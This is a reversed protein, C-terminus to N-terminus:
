QPAPEPNSEPASAGPEEPIPPEPAPPAPPEIPEGPDTPAPEIIPPEIPTDPAEPPEPEPVPPQEPTTEGPVPAVPEQVWDTALQSPNFLTPCNDAADPIGDRDTDPPLAPEVTTDPDPPPLEEVPTVPTPVPETNEPCGKPPRPPTVMQRQIQAHPLAVDFMRMDDLLGNAHRNRTQGLTLNFSLLTRIAQPPALRSGAIQGNVYLILRRGTDTTM